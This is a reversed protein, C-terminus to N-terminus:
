DHTQFRYVEQTNESMNTWIDEPVKANFINPADPSHHFRRFYVLALMPRRTQTRNPMARHWCRMDRVVVSGAPMVLQFSPMQAARVEDCVNYPTNRVAEDDIILHSGPWVETAGNEITFDVLPINVVITSVPLAFPLEPFLQGSDRHIWQIENGPTTANCGYPLYAFIKEGMVAKMIPMAFPNDIIRADMFPMKLMPHEGNHTDEEMDLVAEMATNVEEIWDRPLVSEIVVLGTERLLRTAADISEPTPKSEAREEASIELKPINITIGASM